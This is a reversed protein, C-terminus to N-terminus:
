ADPLFRNKAEEIQQAIFNGIVKIRALDHLDSHVIMWFTRFLRVDKPLVRILAPDEEALFCPLVCLGAGARTAQYQAILNSSKLRPQADRAVTAAYDLEPSFILDDIYGVFMRQALDDAASIGGWLTPHARAAYVGLEYDTLKRAHLRGRDPRSLGIAIDAERNSLSLSRPMIVLQIELDPHAAALLGLRPALFATGFGDPAAIRVTGSVRTGADKLDSQIGLMTSEVEEARHLLREGHATLTYGSIHREFLKTGLGDELTKLRRSLTAHNVQLRRAALTLKGSRAVALFSQLLDWDFM